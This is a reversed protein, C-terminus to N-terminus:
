RSLDHRYTEKLGLTSLWSILSMATIYVTILTSNGTASFLSTAIAPSLAGGLITGLTLSLSAGSYRTAAPFLESFVAPQPGIYAGQIVLIGCLALAALPVSGTDALPFFVLSWLVLAGCGWQMIRRRGLRDSWVAFAMISGAFMVAATLLLALTTTLPFKLERTAYSVFYVIVIYGLTSIGVYSGAALAVARANNRLVDVIPMRRAAQTRLMQAFIPSEALGIRVWLGVGVLVVSALFPIRWAWEAFATPSVASSTILFVLNSLIIGAPLGLAVFSGFFGRREKPAHEVSMLVAGGWEGGLAFGQIFRFAVLLIPAWVGLQTFNPLLGIGLTSLGMLMLSWVLMSKRGLKDGYHGMAVGGLPRAIFGIAFTGFAALTGALDSVQPFFQPAFVVAAATGYIFFDYWEITTGIAGALAVRRAELASRDPRAATQTSAM